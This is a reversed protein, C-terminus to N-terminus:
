EIFNKKEVNESYKIYEEFLNEGLERKIDEKLDEPKIGKKQIYKKLIDIINDYDNFLPHYEMLELEDKPILKYLIQIARDNIEKRIRELVEDQRKIFGIVRNTDKTIIKQIEKQTLVEEISVEEEESDSFLDPFFRNENKELYTILLSLIKTLPINRKDSIKKLKLYDNENLAVNRYKM